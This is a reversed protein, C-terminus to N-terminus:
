GGTWNRPDVESTTDLLERFRALKTEDHRLQNEISQTLVRRKRAVQDLAVLPSQVENVAMDRVFELPIDPREMWTESSALWGEARWGYLQLFEDLKLILKSGENARSLTVVLDPSESEVLADRAAPRKRVEQALEWLAQDADLTANRHGQTLDLCLSEADGEFEAELFSVLENRAVRNVAACIMTLFFAYGFMDLPELVSIPGFSHQIAKCTKEIRPLCYKQWFEFANGYQDLIRNTANDFEAQESETLEAFKFYAFGKPLIFGDFLGSKPFEAEDYARDRGSLSRKWMVADLPRMPEPWHSTDRKWVFEPDDPAEWEVPFETGDACKYITTLEPM